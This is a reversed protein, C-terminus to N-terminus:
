GTSFSEDTMARPRWSADSVSETLGRGSDIYVTTHIVVGDACSLTSLLQKGLRKALGARDIERERELRVQAAAATLM